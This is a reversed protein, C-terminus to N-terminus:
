AYHLDQHEDNGRSREAFEAPAQDNLSQDPRSENYEARWAEISGLFEGVNGLIGVWEVFSM